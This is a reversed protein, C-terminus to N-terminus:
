LILIWFYYYWQLFTIADKKNHKNKEKEKNRNKHARRSTWASWHLTLVKSIRYQAILFATVDLAIVALQSSLKVKCYWSCFSTKLPTIILRYNIHFKYNTAIWSSCFDFIKQLVQIAPAYFIVKFRLIRHLFTRLELHKSHLPIGPICHQPHYFLVM